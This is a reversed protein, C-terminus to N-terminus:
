FGEFCIPLVKMTDRFLLRYQLISIGQGEDICLLSDCPGVAGYLLYLSLVKAYLICQIPQEAIKSLTSTDEAGVNKLHVKRKAQLLKSILTEIKNETRSPSIKIDDRNEDLQLSLAYAFEKSYVYNSVWTDVIEDGKSSHREAYIKENARKGGFINFLDRYRAILM